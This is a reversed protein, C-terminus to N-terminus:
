AATGKWVFKGLSKRQHSKIIQKKMRNVVCAVILKDLCDSDLCDTNNPDAASRMAHPSLLTIVVKTSRVGDVIQEELKRGALIERTDQWKEYNLNELNMRLRDALCGADKRRYSLFIKNM